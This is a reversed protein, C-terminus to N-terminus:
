EQPERSLIIVQNYKASRAGSNQLREFITSLNAMLWIVEFQMEKIKRSLMPFIKKAPAM